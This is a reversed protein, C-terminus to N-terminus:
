DLTRSKGDLTRLIVSPHTITDFYTILAMNFAYTQYM